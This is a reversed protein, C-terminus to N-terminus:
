FGLILCKLKFYKIFYNSDIYIGNSILNMIYCYRIDRFKIGM